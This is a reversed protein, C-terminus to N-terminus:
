ESQTSLGRKKIEDLIRANMETQFLDINNKIQERPWDWWSLKELLGIESETFRYRIIKAPVGAVIAYPPVDKTVVSGAGVIAGNGIKVGPVIVSNCGIWVDNGVLTRVKHQTNEKVFYGAYPVYPFAHTTINNVPHNTAGITVDWSISCFKGIDCYNVKTYRGISSYKGVSSHVVSAHHSIIAGYELKSESVDAKWNLQVGKKRYSFFTKTKNLQHKIKKYLM